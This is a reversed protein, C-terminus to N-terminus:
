LSMIYTLLQTRAIRLVFKSSDSQHETFFSGAPCHNLTSGKTKSLTYNVYEDAGLHWAKEATVLTWEYHNEDRVFGGPM